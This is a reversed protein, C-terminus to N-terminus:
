LYEGYGGPHEFGVEGGDALVNEAVCRRGSWRRTAAPGSRTSWARGNMGPFPRSAPGSGAARDDGPRHRLHRLGGHPHPGPGTGARPM